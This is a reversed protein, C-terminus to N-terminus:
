LRCDLTFRLNGDGDEGREVVEIDRFYGSGELALLYRALRVGPLEEGGRVIGELRLVDFKKEVVKGRAEEVVATQRRTEIRVRTLVVDQPTLASVARLHQVANHGPEIMAELEALRGQRRQVNELIQLYLQRRPQLRSYENQLLQLSSELSTNEFIMVASLVGFVLAALVTAVGLVKHVAHLTRVARLPEPLLNLGRRTELALGMSTAYMPSQEAVEEPLRQDLGLVGFPDLTQVEVGLHRALNRDLNKLLAGGGCLHVRNVQAGKFRGQYYDISRQVENVLRELVPRMQVAVERLPVGDPTEGEADEEPIGYLRKMEEAQKASWVVQRGEFFIAGTLVETFDDSATTIERVFQLEGQCLFALRTTGAGIDMVLQCGETDFDKARRVLEAVAVSNGSVRSPQLRLQRLLELHGTVLESKAALLHVRLKTPEERTPELAEFDFQAAEVPFPLHNRAAWPVAEKLDKKPMRPVSFSRFVVELGSISTSLPQGVMKRLPLRQELLRILEENAATNQVGRLNGPLPLVGCDELQLGKVGRKLIVYKVSSSGIDLGVQYTAVALQPLRLWRAMRGGAQPAREGLATLPSSDEREDEVESQLAPEPAPSLRETPSAGAERAQIEQELPDPEAFRRAGVPELPADVVAPASEATTEEASQRLAAQQEWLVQLDVAEEFPAATPLFDLDPFGSDVSPDDRGIQTKLLFDIDPNGDRM